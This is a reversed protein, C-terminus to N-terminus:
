KECVERGDVHTVIEWLLRLFIRLKRIQWVGLNCERCGAFFLNGLLLSRPGFRFLLVLVLEFPAQM